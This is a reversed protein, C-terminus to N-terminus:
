FANFVRGTSAELVKQMDPRKHISLFWIYVDMVEDTSKGPHTCVISHEHLPM